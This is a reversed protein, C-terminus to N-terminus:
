SYQVNYSVRSVPGAQGPPTNSGIELLLSLALTNAPLTRIFAHLEPLTKTNAAALGGDRILAAGMLPGRCGRPCPARSPM